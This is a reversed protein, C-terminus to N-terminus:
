DILHHQTPSSFTGPLYRVYERYYLLVIFPWGLLNTIWFMVNGFSQGHRNISKTFSMLPLQAIQALFAWGTVIRFTAAMVMESAVASVLFCVSYAVAKSAGRNRVPGYVHRVFWSYLCISWNRWFYDLTTSNWWDGYFMRDGFRTIEAAINCWLHFVMYFVLFWVYLSLVSLQLMEEAYELINNQEFVTLTQKVAPLIMQDAMFYAVFTIFVFEAVRRLLWMKRISGESKPYDLTYSFTPAMLFYFLNFLGINRPYRALIEPPVTCPQQSHSSRARAASRLVWNVHHYSHLKMAVVVFTVSMVFATSPLPAPKLSVIFVVPLVATLCVVSWALTGVLAPPLIPGVTEVILSACPFIVFGPALKLPLSDYMLAPIVSTISFGHRLVSEVLLRAHTIILILLALNVLGKVSAGAGRGILSEQARPHIYFDMPRQVVGTGAADPPPEFAQHLM